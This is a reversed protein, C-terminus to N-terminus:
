FVLDGGCFLSVHLVTLVMLFLCFSFLLSYCYKFYPPMIRPLIHILNKEGSLVLIAFKEHNKLLINRKNNKCSMNEKYFSFM